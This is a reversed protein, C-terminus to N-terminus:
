GCPAIGTELPYPCEAFRIGAIIRPIQNGTRASRVLRDVAGCRYMSHFKNFLRSGTERALKYYAHDEDFRASGFVTVCPGVFHLKRFGRMFEAFIGM